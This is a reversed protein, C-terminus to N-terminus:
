KTTTNEALVMLLGLGNEINNHEINIINFDVDQLMKTIEDRTFGLWRDGYKTRMDENNHKNFDTILVRGKPCLVRKIEHLVEVPNSLHHLVLNICAFDAENDRLPLHDLEGIRLSIRANKGVTHEAKFRRKAMELMSASGDVGVIGQALPLISELVAGTGCGLDVAINCPSPVAKGVARALDFDGLIEKNLEDWNEAIENFFQRTKRGREDLAILALRLDETMQENNDIHPMVSKLFELAHGTTSASYFVWLGDRRWHLLGAEALIKLHRSIRSQGMNLINVLENVSLEHQYLINLLRLRTEDALAKFYPLALKM